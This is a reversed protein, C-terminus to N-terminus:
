KKPGKFTWPTRLFAQGRKIANDCFGVEVLGADRMAELVKIYADWSIPKDLYLHFHGPTSSEIMKASYDIDFLPMHLGFLETASGILNAAYLDETGQVNEIEVRDNLDSGYEEDADLSPSFWYRRYAM